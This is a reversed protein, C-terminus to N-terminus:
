FDLMERERDFDWESIYKPTELPRYLDLWSGPRPRPDQGRGREEEPLSCFAGRGWRETQPSKEESLYLSAQPPLASTSFLPKGFIEEVCKSEM